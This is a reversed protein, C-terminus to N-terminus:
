ESMSPGDQTLGIRWLTQIRRIDLHLVKLLRMASVPFAAHGYPPEFIHRDELALEEIWPALRWVIYDVLDSPTSHIGLHSRMEKSILTNEYVNAALLSFVSQFLWQSLSATLELPKLHNRIDVIVHEVLNSLAQGMEGEVLLMLRVDVFSLQYGSEFRGRTKARYITHPALSQRHEQFFCPLESVALTALHQPNGIGQRWWQM